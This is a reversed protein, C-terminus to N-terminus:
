FLAELTLSNAVLEKAFANNVVGFSTVMTLFVNKRTGTVRRFVICLRHSHGELFLVIYSQGRNVPHDPDGEVSLM